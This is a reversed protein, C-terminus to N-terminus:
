RTSRSYKFSIDVPAPFQTIKGVSIADVGPILYEGINHENIGGSIEYFANKTKIKVAERIMSASFNDLMLHTLGLEFALALEQLSHIEVIINKYPQSQSKFFEVAEKVGGYFAKHNDKVMWQDVQTFRHNQGGGCVVAYKEFKRIGPTTKRTDLVVVGKDKALSALRDTATAIASCRQLLNLAVREGQLAGAWTLHFPLEIIKGTQLKKGEYQNVIEKADFKEGLCKFTEFFFPLGSLILDSKIKIYAQVPENSLSQTYSFNEFCGDEKLFNLIDQDVGSMTVM